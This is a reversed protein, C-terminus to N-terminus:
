VSSLLVNLGHGVINRLCQKFKNLNPESKNVELKIINLNDQIDLLYDKGIRRLLYKTMFKNRNVIRNLEYTDERLLHEMIDVSCESNDWRELYYECQHLIRYEIYTLKRVNFLIRLM